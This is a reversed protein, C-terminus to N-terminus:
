GPPAAPDTAPPAAPDPAPTPAPATSTAMSRKTKPLAANLKRMDDPTAALTMSRMPFGPLVENEGGIGKVLINAAVLDASLFFDVTDGPKLEPLVNASPVEYPFASLGEPTAVPPLTTATASEQGTSASKEGTTTETDEAAAKSGGGKDDDKPLAVLGVIVLLVVAAAGGFVLLAQKREAEEVSPGGGSSGTDLLERLDRYEQTSETAVPM